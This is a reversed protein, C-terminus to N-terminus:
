RDSVAHSEKQNGAFVEVLWQMPACAADAIPPAVPPPPPPLACITAVPEAPKPAAKHEQVKDSTDPKALASAPLIDQPEAGLLHQNSRSLRNRLVLRIKGAEIAETITEALQPVVALTIQSSTSGSMHRVFLQEKPAAMLVRADQCITKTYQKGDKSSVALVDVHDDPVIAHDVLADDGLKLTIAREDNELSVSLGDHGPFLDSNVIPEGAPVFTRTVRDNISNLSVLMDRTAYAKPVDLYSVSMFGLRTGASIDGRAAVVKVFESSASQHSARWIGSLGLVGIAIAAVVMSPNAKKRKSKLQSQNKDWALVPAVNPLPSAVM